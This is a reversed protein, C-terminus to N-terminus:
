REKNILSHYEAFALLVKGKEDKLENYLCVEKVYDNEIAGRKYSEMIEPITAL